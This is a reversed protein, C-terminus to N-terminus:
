IIGYPELSYMLLISPFSRYKILKTETNIGFINIYAYKFQLGKYEFDTEKISTTEVRSRLIDQVSPQYSDQALRDLDDLYSTM